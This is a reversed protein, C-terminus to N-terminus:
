PPYTQQDSIYDMDVFLDLHRNHLAIMGEIDSEVTSVVVKMQLQNRFLDVLINSIVHSSLYSSKYGLQIINKEDADIVDDLPIFQSM